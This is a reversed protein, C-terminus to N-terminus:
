YRQVLWVGLLLFAAGLLRPASVPHEPLGLWGFHDLLLAGFLQGAIIAVSFNAAGISPIAQIGVIVITAGILGGCWAWWPAQTAGRWNGSQGLVIAICTMSGLAIGGIAFNVLSSYLPHLVFTRMQANMTAQAPILLGTVLAMLLWGTKM